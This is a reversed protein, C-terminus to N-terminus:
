HHKMEYPIPLGMLSLIYPAVDTIAHLPLKFKTHALDKQMVIFPVPNTTHSTKPSGTAAIMEEANGHDGVLIITGNLKEIVVDYLRKLEHDLCEISKVTADFDGSHGVMDPNAYNILYFNRPATKLSQLVTDTIEPASMCPHDVYNKASISPILVQTENPWAHEHGGSFFYTVHAYKETEAISFISYGNKSLIEKLTNCVPSSKYLITVNADTEYDVPTIFFAPSLKKTPFATFDPNCFAETLQRARDPRVNFFIIGDQKEIIGHHNLQTPPIFEDTIGQSYYADLAEQWSSYKIPQVETLENYSKETRDWNHDRDMAYFRGQISGIIGCEISKLKEDLQQLYLPASQPPSDRGDLFPHMVINTIGCKKATEIFAFLEKMSSHVGADSLLGMIHLQKNQPLTKLTNILTTNSFFSENEIENEIKAIPQQIIRGSGLALHGAESNGMMNPLLGVANGSAALLTHPYMSFWNNLHPKHAHAIANGEKKERYGYGDLVILLLPGQKM